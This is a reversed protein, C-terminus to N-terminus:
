PAPAPPAAPAPTEKQKVMTTTNEAIRFIVIILELWVRGLITYLLFVLPAGLVGGLMGLGSRTGLGAALISLAGVAALIMIIVYLVKIIKTTVFDNFSLDFLSGFFGKVEM